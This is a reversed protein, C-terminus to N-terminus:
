RNRIKENKKLKNFKEIEDEVDDILKHMCRHERQVKLQDFYKDVNSNIIHNEATYKLIENTFANDMLRKIFKARAYSIFQKATDMGFALELNTSHCQFPV